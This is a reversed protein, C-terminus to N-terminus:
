NKIRAKIKEPLNRLDVFKVGDILVIEIKQGKHLLKNEGGTLAIYENLNKSYLKNLFNFFSIFNSKGSGNAGILLNIPKLDIREQHISKYGSIEIYDM